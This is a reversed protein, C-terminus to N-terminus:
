LCESDTAHKTFIFMFLDLLLLNSMPHLPWLKRKPILTHVEGYVYITSLNQKTQINEATDTFTPKKYLLWTTM